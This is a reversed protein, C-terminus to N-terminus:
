FWRGSKKKAAKAAAKAGAAREKRATAGVLDIVVAAVNDTTYRKIALEVLGEAIAQSSEGKDIQKRTYRIADASPMVDWLGDTAVIVFEDIDGLPLETVDPTAVIPDGTFHVSDAFEKTIFGEGVSEALGHPLGEGKFEWDGFARSVALVDCVRGDNVWGGAANVRDIEPQVAAGYGYVRHETTLDFAQGNRCLVARSDGVNAVLIRDPKVLAITATSGSKAARVGGEKKLFKLLDRDAAEFSKMLLPTLDVPCCLGTQGDVQDLSCSGRFTEDDIVGSFIDFMHDALWQVAPLGDHGDLVMAYMFGCKGNPFVVAEDEMTGRPGQAAAVGFDLGPGVGGAAQERTVEVIGTTVVGSAVMQAGNGGTPGGASAKVDGRRSRLGNGMGGLNPARITGSDISEGAGRGSSSASAAAACGVAGSRLDRRAADPSCGNLDLGLIGCRPAPALANGCPIIGQRSHTHDARRHGLCPGFGPLRGAVCHPAHHHPAGQPRAATPAPSSPGHM